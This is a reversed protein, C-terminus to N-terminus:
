LVTDKAVVWCMRCSCPPQLGEGRASHFVCDVCFGFHVTRDACMTSASTQFAGHFLKVGAQSLVSQKKPTWQCM